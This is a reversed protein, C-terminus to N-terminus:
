QRRDVLLCWQPCGSQLSTLHKNSLISICNTYWSHGLKRGHIILIHSHYPYWKKNGGILVMPISYTCMSMGYIDMFWSSTLTVNSFTAIYSAGGQVIIAWSVTVLLQHRITPYYHPLRQYLLMDKRLHEMSTSYEGVQVRLFACIHTFIGYMSCIVHLMNSICLPGGWVLALNTFM